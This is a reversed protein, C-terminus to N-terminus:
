GFIGGQFRWVICAKVLAKTTSQLSITFDQKQHCYRCLESFMSFDFLYRGLANVGVSWHGNYQSTSQVSGSFFSLYWGLQLCQFGYDKKLVCQHLLPVFTTPTVLWQSSNFGIGHSLGWALCQEHPQFGLILYDLSRTFFQINGNQYLFITMFVRLPM